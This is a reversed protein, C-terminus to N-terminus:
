IYFVILCTCQVDNRELPVGPMSCVHASSHRHRGPFRNVKQVNKGGTYMCSICSMCIVYMGHVEADNQVNDGLWDAVRGTVVARARHAM